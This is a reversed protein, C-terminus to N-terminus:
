AGDRRLVDRRQRFEEVSIEGRAYREALIEEAGDTRRRAAASRGLLFAGVSLGVWLLPFLVFWPGGDWGPHALLFTTMM